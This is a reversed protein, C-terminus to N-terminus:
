AKRYARMRKINLQIVVEESGQLLGFDQTAIDRSFRRKIEPLLVILEANRNM